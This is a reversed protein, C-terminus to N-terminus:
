KVEYMYNPLKIEKGTYGGDLDSYQDGITAIIDYGMKSLNERHKPKYDAAKLGKVQPKCILTDIRSYGAKMLNNYTAGCTHEKRGTIFFINVDHEVFFDYLRKVEEIATAKEKLVWADWIDSKYGFNIEKIHEYNSLTTEDIDFVVATSDTFEYDKFEALAEDVIKKLEENYEGKEYYATVRNKAHTLNILHADEKKPAKYCDCATLSVFIATVFIISLFKRM